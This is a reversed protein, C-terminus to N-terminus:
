WMITFVCFACLVKIKIALCRFHWLKRSEVLWRWVRPLCVSIHGDLMDVECSGAASESSMLPCCGLLWSCQDSGCARSLLLRPPGLIVTLDNWANYNGSNVFLKIKDLFKNKHNIARLAIWITDAMNCGICGVQM